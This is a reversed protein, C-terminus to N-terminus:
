LYCENKRTENWEAGAYRWTVMGIIEEQIVHKIIKSKSDLGTEYCDIAELVFSIYTGYKSDSLHESSRKYVDPMGKSEFLGFLLENTTEPM